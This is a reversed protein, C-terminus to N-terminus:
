NTNAQITQNEAESTQEADSSAGVKEDRIKLIRAEEDEYAMECWGSELCNKVFAENEKADSMVYRGVLSPQSYRATTM